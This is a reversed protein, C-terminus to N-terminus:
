DKGVERERSRFRVLECRVSGVVMLREVSIFRVRGEGYMVRGRSGM